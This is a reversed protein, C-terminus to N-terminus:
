RRAETAPEAAEPESKSAPRARPARLRRWLREALETLGGPAVLVIALLILGLILDSHESERTITEELLVFVVAGAIPGAFRHMGGILVVFIPTANATWFLLNPYAERNFIAFLAGALAGFTGAITFAALEHRKVALGIFSARLRNERIAQLAAGFPSRTVAWLGAAGAAAVSLVFWYANVTSDLFAPVEIGHIGNDGGTFDYWQFVIVYILQSLALTLLAFYLRVARFAVLGTVFAIAAGVPIALPIAAVPSWELHRWVLAVTYAGVGFYAAHAFSVIGTQGLLLNLSLAWLAVIVVRAATFLEIETLYYPAGVALVALVIWARAAGGVLSRARTGAGVRV